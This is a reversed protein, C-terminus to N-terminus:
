MLWETGETFKGTNEIITRIHEKKVDRGGLGAIFSKVNKNM